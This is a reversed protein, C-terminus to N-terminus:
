GHSIGAPTDLDSVSVEELPHYIGLLSEPCPTGAFDRLVGAEADIEVHWCAALNVRASAVGAQAHGTGANMVRVVVDIGNSSAGFVVSDTRTLDRGEVARMQEGHELLTTDGCDAMEDVVTESAGSRGLRGAVSELCTATEALRANLLEFARRRAADDVGPAGCGSAALVIVLGVSVLWSDRTRLM